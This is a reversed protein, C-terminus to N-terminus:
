ESISIGVLTLIFGPHELEEPLERKGPSNSRVARGFCRTRDMFAALEAVREDVCVPRGEIIGIKDHRNHDAIALRFVPRQSGGPM